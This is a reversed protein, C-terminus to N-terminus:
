DQPHNCQDVMVCLSSMITMLPGISSAQQLWISSLGWLTQKPCELEELWNMLTHEMNSLLYIQNSCLKWFWEKHTM